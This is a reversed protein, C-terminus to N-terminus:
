KLEKIRFTNSSYWKSSYQSRKKNGVFYSVLKNLNLKFGSTRDDSALYEESQNPNQLWDTVKEAQLSSIPIISVRILFNYKTNEDLKNKEILALNKFKSSFKKAEDFDYFINTTDESNIKYQEEWIDYSITRTFRKHLISKKNKQLLKIEIEIISPLGSQITGVIKQSFLNKFVATITLYNQNLNPEIKQIRIERGEGSFGRHFNLLIAFTLFLFFHLGTDFNKM